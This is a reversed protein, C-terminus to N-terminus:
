IFLSFFRDAGYIPLIATSIPFVFIFWFNATRFLYNFCTGFAFSKEMNDNVWLIFVVFILQLLYIGVYTRNWDRINIGVHIHHIMSTTIALYVGFTYAGMVKGDPGFIGGSAYQQNYFVGCLL